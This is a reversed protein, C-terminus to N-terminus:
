RSCGLFQCKECIVFLFKSVDTSILSHKNDVCGWTAVGLVVVQEDTSSSVLAHDNAAEGVFEM